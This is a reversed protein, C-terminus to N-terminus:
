SKWDSWRVTIRCRCGDLMVGDWLPRAQVPVEEFREMKCCDYMSMSEVNSRGM